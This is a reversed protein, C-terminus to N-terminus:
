TISMRPGMKRSMNEVVAMIEYGYVVHLTDGVQAPDRPAYIVM